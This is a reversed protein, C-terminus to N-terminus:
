LADPASGPGKTHVVRATTPLFLPAYAQSGREVRDWVSAHIAIGDSPPEAAPTKFFRDYIDDVGEHFWVPRRPSYRYLAAPGKRPDYLRDFSNAAERVQRRAGGLLAIDGRYLHELEGMMWDLTVYALGDKPYGGGVNSHAGAFWVQELTELADDSAAAGPRPDRHWVNPHFTRREDDLALAQRAHRVGSM